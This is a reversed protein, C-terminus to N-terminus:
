PDVLCRGLLSEATDTMTDAASRPQWGLVNTAKAASVAKPPGLLGAFTELQPVFRAAARVLWDPAVRTPIRTGRDGLRSRLIAAIEPLTVPEGSAALFRQGAAKPSTMAAVHL